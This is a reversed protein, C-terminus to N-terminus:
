RAFETGYKKLNLEHFCNEEAILHGIRTLAMITRNKGHEIVEKPVGKKTYIDLTKSSTERIRYYQLELEDIRQQHRLDEELKRLDKNKRSFFTFIGM